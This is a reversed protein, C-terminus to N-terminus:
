SHEQLFKRDLALIQEWEEIDGQEFAMLIGQHHDAVERRLGGFLKEAVRAPFKYDEVLAVEMEQFEQFGAMDPTDGPSADQLEMYYHHGVLPGTPAYLEALDASAVALSVLRADKSPYEQDTAVQGTLRGDTIVPQTGLVAKVGIWIGDETMGGARMNQGLWTASAVENVGAGEGHVIDHAAMSMRAIRRLQQNMGATEAIRDVAEVAFSSHHLNHYALNPGSGADFDPYGSGYTNRVTGLALSVLEDAM